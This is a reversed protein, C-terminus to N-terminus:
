QTALPPEHTRLDAWLDVAEVERARRKEIDLLKTRTDAIESEIKQIEQRIAANNAAIDAVLADVETQLKALRDGGRKRVDERKM